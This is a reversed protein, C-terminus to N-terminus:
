PALVDCQPLDSIDLAHIIQQTLCNQALTVTGLESKQELHVGLFGAVDSEEELEM